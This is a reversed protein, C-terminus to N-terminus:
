TEDEGEKVSYYSCICVIFVVNVDVVEVVFEVVNFRGDLLFFLSKKGGSM